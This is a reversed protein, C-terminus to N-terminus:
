KRQTRGASFGLALAGLAVVLVATPNWKNKENNKIEVPINEEVWALSKTVAKNWEKTLRQREDDEMNPTFTRQVAWLAQLEETSKWVGVSKHLGACFAAGLSTTEQVVPQIVDVGLINAQFQMLFRNASAGGDVKLQALQLNSTACDAQMAHLVEATQFAMAQLAARCVHGKDHAATLGVLCARADPRWHPCFLGGFAPVLYLGDNGNKGKLGTQTALIETEGASRIIGLQDRLWQITSGAFAVSGELAFNPPEDPGLQYAVTTLLGHTSAIPTTGTNMRCLLRLIHYM